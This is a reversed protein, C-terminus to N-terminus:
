RSPANQHLVTMVSRFKSPDTLYTHFGYESACSFALSPLKSVYRSQTAELFSPLQLEGVSGM